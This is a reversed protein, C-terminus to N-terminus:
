RPDNLDMILANTNPRLLGSYRVLKGLLPFAFSVSFEYLGQNVRKYAQSEPFLAIPLRIGLFRVQRQVWYWGGGRIDVGLQLALAGTTERWFGDPYIGQPVFQSVMELQANFKRSWLLAGNKHAITVEFAHAGQVMPLGLKAALRRGIFGAFGRGFEIDVAGSLNGGYRHLDQLLPDLQSFSEGFWEVVPNM